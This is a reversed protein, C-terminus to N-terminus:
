ITTFTTICIEFDFPTASIVFLLFLIFYLYFLNELTVEFIGRQTLKATTKSKEEDKAEMQRSFISPYKDASM